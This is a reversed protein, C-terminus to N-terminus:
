AGEYFQNNKCNECQNCPYDNNRNIQYGRCKGEDILDSPNDGMEKILKCDQINNITM